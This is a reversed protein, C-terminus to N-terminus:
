PQIKRQEPLPFARVGEVLFFCRCCCTFRYFLVYLFSFVLPSNAPPLWGSCCRLVGQSLGGSLGQVADIQYPRNVAPGAKGSPKERNNLGAELRERTKKLHWIHRLLQEEDKARHKPSHVASTLRALAMRASTNYFKNVGKRGPFLGFFKRLQRFSTSRQMHLMVEALAERVSLHNEGEIGLVMAVENYAPIRKGAESIIIEAMGNMKEELTEIADKLVDKEVKSLAKMKNSLSQRSKLLSRYACILRRLVLIDEDVERFWKPDLAMLVKVDNKANKTKIGLKEYMLKFLRLRRLYFVKVGCRLVEVFEDTLEVPITDM